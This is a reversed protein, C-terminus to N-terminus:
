ALEATEGSEEFCQDMCKRFNEQLDSEKRVREFYGEPGSIANRIDRALTPLHISCIHTYCGSRWAPRRDSPITGPAIAIQIAPERDYETVEWTVLGRNGDADLEALHQVGYPKSVHAVKHRFVHWLVKLATESYHEPNMFRKAFNVIRGVGKAELDGCLLCAFLEIMGTCAILAPMYAHRNREDTRLCIAIDKDFTEVREKSFWVAYAVIRAETPEM